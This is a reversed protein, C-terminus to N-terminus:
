MTALHSQGFLSHVSKSGIDQRLNWQRSEALLSSTASVASKRAVPAEDYIVATSNFMSPPSPCTQFGPYRIPGRDPPGLQAKAGARNLKGGKPFPLSLDKLGGALKSAVPRRAVGSVSSKVFPGMQPFYTCCGTSSAWWFIVPSLHDKRQNLEARISAIAVLSRFRIHLHLRHAPSLNLGPHCQNTPHLIQSTLVQLAAFGEPGFWDRSNGRETAGDLLILM